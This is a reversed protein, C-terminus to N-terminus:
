GGVRSLPASEVFHCEGSLVGAEEGSEASGPANIFAEAEDISRVEFVFFIEEQDGVVRWLHELVLGAKLHADTHSQFVAWWREFSKVRNRCLM